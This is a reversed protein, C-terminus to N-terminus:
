RPYHTATSTKGSTPWSKGGSVANASRSPITEFPGGKRSLYPINMSQHAMVSDAVRDTNILTGSCAFVDARSQEARGYEASGQRGGASVNGVSRERRRVREGEMREKCRKTILMCRGRGRGVGVTVM